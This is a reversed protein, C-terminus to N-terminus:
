FTGSSRGTADSFFKAVSPFSPFAKHLTSQEQAHQRKEIVEASDMRKAMEQRLWVMQKHNIIGEQHSWYLVSNFQREALGSSRKLMQAQARPQKQSLKIRCPPQIWPEGDVHMPLPADLVLEIERAQCLQVPYALGVKILALHEAGRVLCVDLKGDSQHEMASSENDHWLRVGAGWSGINCIIIGEIDSDIEYEKGDCILHIKKHFEVCSRMLIESGGILSYHFQNVMQTLFIGPHRNRLAHFGYTIQAEVGVGFYNNFMQDTVLKMSFTNSSRAKRREAQFQWRDLQVSRSELLDTLFKPLNQGVYSNGWGHVRSLDNGTGLPIIAVAPWEAPLDASASEDSMIEDLMSFIWGVTGDGGAVVIRLRLGFLKVFWKLVDIPKVCSKEKLNIIQVPNVMKMLSSLLESGFRGGSSPNVVFLVPQVSNIDFLSDLEYPFHHMAKVSERGNMRVSTDGFFSQRRTGQSSTMPGDSGASASASSPHSASRKEASKTQTGADSGASSAVSEQETPSLSSEETSKRVLKRSGSSPDPSPERQKKHRQGSGTEDISNMSAQSQLLGDLQSTTGRRAGAQGPVALKSVSHKWRVSGPPLIIPFYRERKLMELTIGPPPWSRFREYLKERNVHRPHTELNHRLAIIVLGLLLLFMLKHSYIEYITPVYFWIYSIWYEVGSLVQRLAEFGLSIAEKLAHLGGMINSLECEEAKERRCCLYARPYEKKKGASCKEEGGNECEEYIPVPVHAFPSECLSDRWECVGCESPTLRLATDKFSFTQNFTSSSWTWGSDGCATDCVGGTAVEDNTGEGAGDGGTTTAGLLHAISLLLFM